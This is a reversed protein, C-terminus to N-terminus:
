RPAAGSGRHGRHRSGRYRRAAAEGVGPGPAPLDGDEDHGAGQQNRGGHPAGITWLPPAIREIHRGEDAPGQLRQCFGLERDDGIRSHAQNDAAPEAVDRVRPVPSHLPERLGAAGSEPRRDGNRRHGAQHQASQDPSPCQRLSKPLRQENGDRGDGGRDDDRISWRCFDHGCRCTESREDGRGARQDQHIQHALRKGKWGHDAHGAGHRWGPM